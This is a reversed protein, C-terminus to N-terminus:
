RDDSGDNLAEWERATRCVRHAMRSGSFRETVCIRRDSDNTTNTNNDRARQEVTSNGSNDRPSNAALNQASAPLAALAFLAGAATAILMKRM